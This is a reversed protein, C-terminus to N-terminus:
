YQNEADIAFSFARLLKVLARLSEFGDLARRIRGSEHNEM